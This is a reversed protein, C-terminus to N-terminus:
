GGLVAEIPLRCRGNDSKGHGCTSGQLIQRNGGIAAQSDLDGNRDVHVTVRGRHGAIERRVPADIVAM